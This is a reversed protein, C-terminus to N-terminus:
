EPKGEANLRELISRLNGITWPGYEAPPRGANLEAGAVEAELNELILRAQENHGLWRKYESVTVRWRMAEASRERLEARRTRNFLWCMFCAICAAGALYAWWWAWPMMMCNGAGCAAWIAAVKLEGADKM